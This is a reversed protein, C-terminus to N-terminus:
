KWYQNFFDLHNGRIDALFKLSNEVSVGKHIVQSLAAAVALPDDDKVFTINRGVMAGRVNPAARIGKAFNEITSVPTAKAAGGLMLIPCTTSRVIREFNDNYSIKLWTDLSTEGLAAAAGLDRILTEADAKFKFGEDRGEVTAPEIFVSLGLQSLETVAKACEAITIISGHDDPHFRYLMKGGDLNLRKISNASFSTFRDELEYVSGAHGGRNMCGIIVKKDLFSKGTRKKHLFDVIIIEEIMDTTGMVGDISEDLLIRLTRGLYQYRDGLGLNDNHVKTVRRGPHDTAIIVLKGDNTLKDRRKRKKAHEFISEKENIRAETIKYFLKKPFFKEVEFKFGNTNYKYKDVM